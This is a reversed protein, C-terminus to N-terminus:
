PKQDEGEPAKVLLPMSSTQRAAYYRNWTEERPFDGKFDPAVQRRPNPHFPIRAEGGRNIYVAAEITLDYAL